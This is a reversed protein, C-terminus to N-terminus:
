ICELRMLNSEMIYFICALFLQGHPSKPTVSESLETFDGVGIANQAAVRFLYPTGEELEAVTFEMEPTATM